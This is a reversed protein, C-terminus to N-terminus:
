SATTSTAAAAAASRRRARAACASSRATSPAAPCACSRRATCRRCRSTPAASRRPSRSRCRSRSTTARARFIPSEDVRTVVFLDGPPGGRLGAEGKGALRIRSGEKVGAPINVKYKKLDRIRGQGQCTTAPTSSSPARAAAAPARGPSRSCARARPSSAAATASRACSRARAPSRARAAAPRAPRTPPSPSRCRRARSRRTSPSRSRRRSTAGASPRRGRASRRARRDHQLHRLPHGLLRRLRGATAGGGGRRRRVPQGRRLDLRQPRVEQAEGPGGLTDYAESIQKFRDEAGAEKNTDPHYKRALKRYAKKIDEQSAKRDVGLVKYYDTGNAM